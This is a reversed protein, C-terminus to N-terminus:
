LLIEPRGHVRLIKVKGVDPVCVGVLNCICCVGAQVIGQGLIFPILALFKLLPLTVILCNCFGM